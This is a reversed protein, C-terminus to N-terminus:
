VLCNQYLAMLQTAGGFWHLKTISSGSTTITFHARRERLVDAGIHAQVVEAYVPARTGQPSGRLVAVYTMM